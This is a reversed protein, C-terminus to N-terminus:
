RKTASPGRGLRCRTALGIQLSSEPSGKETELDPKVM